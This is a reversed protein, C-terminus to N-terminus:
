INSLIAATENNMELMVHEAEAVEWVKRTSANVRVNHFRAQDPAIIGSANQM